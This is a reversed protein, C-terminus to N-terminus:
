RNRDENGLKFYVVHSLVKFDEDVVDNTVRVSFTFGDGVNLKQKQSKQTADFTLTQKLTGDVFVEVTLTGASVPEMILELHEYIKRHWRLRADLHAFDLHPIQYQGTYAAGDKNRDDQELLRVFGGEGIVPKWIGDSARKLALTDPVNQRSFSFKVPLDREVGSFDWKLLLDNVTSGASPVSFLAVKKHQYWVSLVQGLRSLNLNDRLWRNLGLRGSADSARVGGLADVASLLHFSGTASLFIADDDMPCVAYPSRACGIAQSKTREVWNLPDPDSDDIYFIGVPYKWVWLIGLASALGWIEDGVDSRVRRTTGNTTGFDTHDTPSSIYLRHPDKGTPAVLVVRDRHVVGNWPRAGANTATTDWDPSPTAVDSTTAGDDVLVQPINYGNLYLLKRNLSGDEKGCVVFRGPRGVKSLSAKLTVADLNGDREKFLNGLSTATILRSGRTIVYDTASFTTLWPETTTLSTDSAVSQVTRREMDTANYLLISDGQFIRQAETGSTWLTGASGTVTASGATTAAKFVGGSPIRLGSYWDHIGIITPSSANTDVRYNLSIDAAIGDINLEISETFSAAPTITNTNNVQNVVVGAIVIQPLSPLTSLPGVNISATPTSGTSTATRDATGQTVGSYSSAVGYLNAGASYFVTIEQMSVLSTALLSYFLTGTYPVIGGTFSVSGANTYTNGEDDICSVATVAGGHSAVFVVVLDGAAYGAAPVGIVLSSGPVKSAQVPTSSQALSVGPFSVIVGGYVTGGSSTGLFSPAIGVGASDFVLVGAEKRIFLDEMTVGEATLLESPETLLRNEHNVMGALGTPLQVAPPLDGRWSM